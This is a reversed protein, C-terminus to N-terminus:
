DTMAAEDEDDVDAVPEIRYKFDTCHAACLWEALAPLGDEVRRFALWQLRLRRGSRTARGSASFREASPAPKDDKLPLQGLREGIALGRQREQAVLQAPTVDASARAYALYLDLVKGDFAAKKKRIADVATAAAERRIRRFNETFRRFSDKDNAKLPVMQDRARATMLRSHEESVDAYTTRALRQQPTLPQSSWPAILYAAPTLFYGNLDAVLRQADAESPASCLLTWSTVSKPADVCVDSSRTKLEGLWKKDLAADAPLTVLLSQGFLEASAKQPLKATLERFANEGKPLTPFTAILTQREEVPDVAQAGRWTRVAGCSFAHTPLEVAPKKVTAPLDVPNAKTHLAVFFLFSFLAAVVFGSFHVGALAVVTLWGPPRANLSEFIQLTLRAAMKDSMRKPFSADIEGIIRCATGEPITQSDLSRATFNERRLRAVIQSRRYELPLAFLMAAGLYTLFYEKLAISGLILLVAATLRFGADLLYHRSFLIAHLNWGGDLPLLPLLNIGNIFVMLAAAELLLKQRMILAAVGLVVGLGIGPIPGSLSVVAKKWAGVNYNRGTVAAGFLPIFFMRLNRYGFALMALYHGLEHFLLNPILLAVTKLNWAASGIWYFLLGSVILVLITAGWNAKREQLRDIESLVGAIRAESLSSMSDPDPVPDTYEDPGAPAFEREWDQM